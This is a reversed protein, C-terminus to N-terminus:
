HKYYKSEMDLHKVEDDISEKDRQDLDIIMGMEGVVPLKVVKEDYGWGYKPLQFWYQRVVLGKEDYLDVHYWIVFDLEDWDSKDIEIFSRPKLYGKKKVVKGTELLDEDVSMYAGTLVKTEYFHFDSNNVLYVNFDGSDRMIFAIFIEQQTSKILEKLEIIEKELDETIKSDLKEKVVKAVEEYFWIKKDSPSNFKDWLKEGQVKYAEKMSRLNHIKDACCVMLAEQSDSELNKLYKNKRLEWSEKEDSEINPDKDESVGRVINAVDSGFDKTMDDFDYGRVDELIDHLIGAVIIDENDTYQNLIWAVSFPHSIYPLEDDGKRIQGYHLKSALNIAKQIKKTLEM